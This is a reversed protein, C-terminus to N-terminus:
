KTKIPHKARNLRQELPPKQSLLPLTGGCWEIICQQSQEAFRPTIWGALSHDRYHTRQSQGAFKPTIWRPDSLYFIFYPQSQGAFRPSIWRSKNIGEPPIATIVGCIQTLDVVFLSIIMFDFIQPYEPTSIDMPM